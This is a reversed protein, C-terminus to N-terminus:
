NSGKESKSNAAKLIQKKLKLGNESLASGYSLLFNDLGGYKMVTRLTKTKLRLSIDVGLTDSFLTVVHLNPLFTRRSKRNSHSVKNGFQLTEGTLECARTM